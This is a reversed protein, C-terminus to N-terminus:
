ISRRSLYWAEEHHSRSQSLIERGTIEQLRSAQLAAKVPFGIGKIM